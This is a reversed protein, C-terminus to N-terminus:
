MYTAKLDIGEKHASKLLETWSPNKMKEKIPKLRKNLEECCKLTAKLFLLIKNSTKIYKMNDCSSYISIHNIKMLKIKSLFHNEHKALSKM